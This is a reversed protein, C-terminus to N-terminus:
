RDTCGLIVRLEGLMDWVKEMNGMTARVGETIDLYRGMDGMAKRVRKTLDMHRKTCGMTDWFVKFTHWKLKLNKSLSSFPLNKLSTFILSKILGLKFFLKAVCIEWGEEKM